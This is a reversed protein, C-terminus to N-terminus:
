TFWSNEMEKKLRVEKSRSLSKKSQQLLDTYATLLVSAVLLLLQASAALSLMLQTLHHRQKLLNNLAVATESVLLSPHLWHHQVDLM